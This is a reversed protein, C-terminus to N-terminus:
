RMKAPEQLMVDSPDSFDDWLETVSRADNRYRFSNTKVWSRVAAFEKWLALPHV